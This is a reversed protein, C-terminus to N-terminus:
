PRASPPAVRVTEGGKLGIPKVIVQEGASVGGTVAVVPARPSTAGTEVQVKRVTGDPEAVFVFRDNGFPMVAAKPVVLANHASGVEIFVEAWQGVQLESPPLPFAVQVLMEETAPDAEPYVRAVHGKFPKDARGRLVVTTPQDKRVKGSFRQDVHANVWVVSTDAVSVVPQGAVVADGAEVRRRTVLGGVSTVVQTESLKFEHYRLDAEEVGIASEAVRYKEQYVDHEERSLAGTRILAQAREWSHKTQQATAKAAEVRARARDVQHRLDTDELLAVLQGEKGFEGEDVLVKEVRGTLKSGVKALVKTTVTGTGAVEAAVTQERVPAVTVDRPSFLFVKLLALTALLLGAYM